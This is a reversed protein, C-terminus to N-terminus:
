FQFYIFQKSSFGPGYVGFIITAFLIFLVFVIRFGVWQTQLWRDLMCGKKRRILDVFLLLVLAICLINMENVSLGYTYIANGSLVWLNPNEIMQKIYGIAQRMSDARFFIWAFDVLVFTVLMRCFLYGGSSVAVNFKANVKRVFPKLLNEIVLYIGHLFGWFVFTWDAGHWLGSVTFTILLNLYKRGKGKRNGGLPIYLYDRFWTSLSIHWRRWFDTVSTALYPANFNEMLNFGMVKAAGLAIISYSSFDCYIQIGFGVAVMILAVTGYAYYHDFVTDVLISIRDAIVTKLFLGWIMLIMGDRIRDAQVIQKRSWYPVERIQHIMNGSREIPGAVLQPFFSIFLAYRILNREAKIDGRYCDVTYGLAQFTFFSIGVPLVIDYARMQTHLIANVSEIGFNFYKFYFLIGLNAIFCLALFIKKKVVTKASELGIGCIWTAFTSFFLLLSYKANWNMYFFYSAILLWFQRMRAPIAIYLLVVIPFFILFDISNFLMETDEIQLIITGDM